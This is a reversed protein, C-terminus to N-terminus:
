SAMVSYPIVARSWYNCQEGRSGRQVWAVLDKETHPTCTPLVEAYYVVQPGPKGLLLDYSLEPLLPAYVLDAVGDGHIGLLAAFLGGPRICGLVGICSAFLRNYSCRRVFFLKGKQIYTHISAIHTKKRKKNKLIGDVKINSETTSKQEFVM